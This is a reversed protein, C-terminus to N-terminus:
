GTLLTVPGNCRSVIAPSDPSQEHVVDGLMQSVLVDLPPQALKAVVGVLVNHYHQDAVLAVQSMQASHGCVLGLGEGLAVSEAEDLCRSEIRGVNLRSKM